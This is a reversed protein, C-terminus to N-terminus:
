DPRGDIREIEIRRATLGADIRLKQSNRADNENKEIKQKPESREAADIM